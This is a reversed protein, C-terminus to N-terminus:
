VSLKESLTVKVANAEEQMLTIFKAILRANKSKLPHWLHMTYPIEVDFRRLTVGMELYDCATLPNVISVGLGAMVMSCVSAATTTEVSYRCMINNQAFIEDVKRRYPDDQSFSIYPVCDFDQPTLVTKQTLPHNVPLVCVLAGVDIKEHCFGQYEFQGETIGLDFVTTMMENQLSIEEHSHLSLHISTKASQLRKAVRPIISEAYAPITAIRFNAANHTRIAAAARSIEDMGIFARRVVDHLLFAQDTPTLRKGFRIFLDFGIREEMERLERSITPQSTRLHAAATTMNKNVMIANFVEIQRQNLKTM